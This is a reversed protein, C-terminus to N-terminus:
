FTILYDLTDGRPVIITDLHPLPNPYPVYINFDHYDWVIYLPTGGTVNRIESYLTGPSVPIPSKFQSIDFGFFDNWFAGYISTDLGLKNAVKFRIWADYPALTFNQVTASGIDVYRKITTFGQKSVAVGAYYPDKADVFLDYDGNQDTQTYSVYPIDNLNAEDRGAAGLSVDAGVLPMGTADDLVNGAASTRVEKSGCATSLISIYIIAVICYLAKM